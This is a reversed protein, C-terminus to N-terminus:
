NSIKMSFESSTFLRGHLQDYVTAQCGAATFDTWKPDGNGDRAMANAPLQLCGVIVALGAQNDSQLTITSQDAPDCLALRVNWAPLMDLIQTQVTSATAGTATRIPMESDQTTWRCMEVTSHGIVPATMEVEFGITQQYLPDLPSPGMGSMMSLTFSTSAVVNGGSDGGCGILLLLSVAIRM